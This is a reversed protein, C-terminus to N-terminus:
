ELQQVNAGQVRSDGENVPQSPPQDFLNPNETEMVATRNEASM